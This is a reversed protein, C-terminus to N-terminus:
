QKRWWKYKEEETAKAAKWVKYERPVEMELQEERLAEVELKIQLGLHNKTTLDRRVEFGTCAAKAPENLLIVDPRTAGHRSVRDWGKRNCYTPDPGEAGQHRAAADYWRAKSSKLAEQIAMSDRVSTSADLCLVM